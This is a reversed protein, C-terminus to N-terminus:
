CPTSTTPPHPIYQPESRSLHLRSLHSLLDYTFIWQDHSVRMKSFLCPPKRTELLPGCNSPCWLWTSIIQPHRDLYWKHQLASCGNPRWPSLLSDQPRTPRWICCLLCVLYWPSPLRGLCLMISLCCLWNHDILPQSVTMQVVILWKGHWWVSGWDRKCGEFARCMRWKM